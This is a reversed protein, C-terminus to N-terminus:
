EWEVIRSCEITVYISDEPFYKDLLKTLRDEYREMIRMGKTTLVILENQNSDGEDLDSIVRIYPPKLDDLFICLINDCYDAFDQGDQFNILKM